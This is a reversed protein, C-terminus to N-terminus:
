QCATSPASPQREPAAAASPNGTTPLLALLCGPVIEVGLSAALRRIEETLSARFDKDEEPTGSGLLLDLSLEAGGDAARQFHLALDDHRVLPQRELWEHLRERFELFRELSTVPSVLITLGSHQQAAAGRNEIAVGAIVANPVTLLSGADTRLRTSRFGVQEVVGSQTGVTIRDGIQFAREGILLLTGFYNKLADQAALSAALGAVGVGTLFRGLLDFEGVQYVAYTAVVLIVVAKGMRVSVPVIMDSFSRHPMLLETKTYIAMCLDMLRTGLWGLTGALLFKETAFTPDAVAIPLDLWGLLVFVSWVAVLWTLPRLSSAVFRRSVGSGSRRLLWVVGRTVATLTLRAAVWSFCVALVVGLWQYLDLKGVRVQAWGPLTLRLWASPTDWFRAEVASELSADPPRGLVSRFMTEIQGVTEPTFQWLGKDPDEARRDLVIRGLDGRYLIYKQGEPNDPIEQVYIRGIRDLLYELKFALVPGLESRASVRIESLNLCLAAQAFDRRRAAAQFTMVTDRASDRNSGRGKDPRGKGALRDYLEPIHRVTAESFLWTGDHQRVIEVRVGQAEGLAQPPANWDAPIASLDISLKRLVAELKAALKVGLAARDAPPISELDLYELADTPQANSADAADMVRYFGQLVARPSGLHAPVEDPRKQAAAGNPNDLAPIVIGLQAYRPDPPAPQAAAYMKPINRVTLRTFLWADKGDNQCVRALAIRGNRDAHWTYPPGDPQEPVEQRFVFGRRQLVFALQQALAPGQQRRQEMSLASLDLARAAGYFDGRVANSLFQRLASRPDTFGERLAALEAAEPRPRKRAAQRMAPLRALTEADFRWCGGAGLRLALRFGDADYLVVHEGAGQDPVGSLPLSLSQLVEELDLALVAADPPAPRPRLGELDLCAVADDIMQPFLDYIIVAFYLTKLTERPSRLKDQLPRSPDLPSNLRDILPVEKQKPRSQLAPAPKPVPRDAPQACASSGLLM